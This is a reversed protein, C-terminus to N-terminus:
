RLSDYLFDAEASLLDFSVLEDSLLPLSLLLESVFVEVLSEDDGDDGALTLSTFGEVFFELGLPFFPEYSHRVSRVHM